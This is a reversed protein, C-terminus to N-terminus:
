HGAAAVADVSRDRNELVLDLSGHFKEPDGRQGLEFRLVDFLESTEGLNGGFLLYPGVSPRSRWPRIQGWPFCGLGGPRHRGARRWLPCLILSHASYTRM